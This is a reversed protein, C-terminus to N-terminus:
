PSVAEHQLAADIMTRWIEGQEVGAQGADVWSLPDAADIMTKTPERMAEIAARAIHINHPWSQEIVAALDAADYAGRAAGAFVIARAVREIMEPSSM